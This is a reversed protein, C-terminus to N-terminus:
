PASTGGAAAAEASPKAEVPAGLNPTNSAKGVIKTKIRVTDTITLASAAGATLDWIAGNNAYPGRDIVPVTLKHGKYNVLVLTGCPLTRSAVGIVAPTMTQGCATQQGYFGPGFWTAIQPKSAKSSTAGPSTPGTAGGTSALAATASCGIAVMCALATALPSLLKNAPTLSM